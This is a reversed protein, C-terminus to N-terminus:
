AASKYGKINTDLNNTPDINAVDSVLTSGRRSQLAKEAFGAIASEEAVKILDEESYLEARTMSVANAGEGKTITENELEKRISETAAEM